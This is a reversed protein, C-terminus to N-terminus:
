RERWCGYIDDFEVKVLPCPADAPIYGRHFNAVCRGNYAFKCEYCNEPMEMDKVLVSM